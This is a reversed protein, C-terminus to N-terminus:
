KEEGRPNSLPSRKLVGFGDFGFWTNGEDDEVMCSVDEFPATSVRQFMVNQTNTYAVGQKASGIWMTHNVDQYLCNIHSSLAPFAKLHRTTFDSASTESCVYIGANETGVWLNGDADDIMSNIFQRGMFDTLASNVWTRHELDYCRTKEVASHSTYIWLRHRSDVYIHHYRHAKILEAQGEVLLRGSGMDAVYFRGDDTMVITRGDRSVMDVVLGMNGSKLVQFREKKGDCYGVCEDTAVWLRGDKDVCLKRVRGEVGMKKLREYGDNRLCDHERDLTLVDGADTRAWLRGDNAEGLWVVDSNISSHVITAESGLSSNGDKMRSGEGRREGRLPAPPTKPNPTLSYSKANHGDFRSLGNITGVWIFGYSDRTICRVHNDALGTKVDLWSFHYEGQALAVSCMMWLLSLLWCKKM